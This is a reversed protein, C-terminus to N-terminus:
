GGGEGAWWDGGEGLSRHVPGAAPTEPEPALPPASAALRAAALRAIEAFPSGASEITDAFFIGTQQKKYGFWMCAVRTRISDKHIGTVTMRPGGSNLRVVDGAKFQKAV